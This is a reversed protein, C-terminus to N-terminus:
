QMRHATENYLGFLEGDVYVPVTRKDPMGVTVQGKVGYPALEAEVQTQLTEKRERVWRLTIEDAAARIRAFCDM